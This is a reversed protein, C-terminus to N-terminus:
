TFCFIFFAAGPEVKANPAPKFESFTPKLCDTANSGSSSGYAWVQSVPLLMLAILFIKKNIM